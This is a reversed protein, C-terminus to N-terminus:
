VFSAHIFRNVTPCTSRIVVTRSFLGRRALKSVECANSSGSGTASLRPILFIMEGEGASHLADTVGTISHCLLPVFATVDVRLRRTSSTTGPSVVPKLMSISGSAAVVTDNEGCLEED